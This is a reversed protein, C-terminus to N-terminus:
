KLTIIQTDFNTMLIINGIKQASSGYFFIKRFM